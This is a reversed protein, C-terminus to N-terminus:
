DSGMNYFIYTKCIANSKKCLKVLLVKKSGDRYNPPNEKVENVMNNM